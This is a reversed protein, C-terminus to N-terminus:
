LGSGLVFAFIRVRFTAGLQQLSFVERCYFRQESKFQKTGNLEATIRQSCHAARGVEIYHMEHIFGSSYIMVWSGADQFRQNKWTSIIPHNNPNLSSSSM